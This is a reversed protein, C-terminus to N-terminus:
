RIVVDDIYTEGMEENILTKIKDKAYSLEQRLPASLITLYLTKKRVTLNSTYTAITKGMLRDWLARVRTENYKGELKYERLM